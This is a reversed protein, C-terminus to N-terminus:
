KNRLLLDLLAMRVPVGNKAQRFYAANKLADVETSIEALRPLPHMVTAKKGKLHKATLTYVNKLRQYESRDTFREQQIRTMYVVDCDFAAAFDKTETFPIKKEKFFSTVKYPM